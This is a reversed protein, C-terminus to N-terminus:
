IFEIPLVKKKVFNLNRVHLLMGQFTGGKKMYYCVNNM